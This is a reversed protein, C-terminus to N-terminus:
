LTRAWLRLRSARDTAPAAHRSRAAVTTNPYAPQWAVVSIERLDVGRLIRHDPKPWREDTPIFGFSMGGVDGRAVMTLLDRGLTTDPVDLAFNLGTGDEALRLSGSKTRGLLRDPMHDQLAVIDAGSALSARFAGPAIEESFNAIRTPTNFPAVRGILRRGGEVRLEAAGTRREIEDTV